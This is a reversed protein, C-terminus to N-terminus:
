RGYRSQLTRSVATEDLVQIITEDSAGARLLRVLENRSVRSLDDLGQRTFFYRV